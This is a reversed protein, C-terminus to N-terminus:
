FRKCAGLMFTGFVFRPILNKRTKFKSLFFFFEFPTLCIMFNWYIPTPLRKCNIGKKKKNIQTLKNNVTFNKQLSIRKDNLTNCTNNQTQKECRYM